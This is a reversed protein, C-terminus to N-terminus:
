LLPNKKLMSLINNLQILNNPDPIFAENEWSSITSANVSILKGLQKQSLGNLYRYANIRGSLKKLNLSCPIYGLFKIIKPYFQIQPESRDNEWYTICDESVGILTAVDKQFLSLDIRRKKIHEGITKPHHPYATSRFKLGPASIEIECFGM